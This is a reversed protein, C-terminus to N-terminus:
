RLKMFRPYFQVFPLIFADLDRDNDIDVLTPSSDSGTDDIEGASTFEPEFSTGTNQYYQVKGDAAGTLIDLKGDNDLDGFTLVSYAGVDIGSLPNSSGKRESLVSDMTINSSNLYFGIGGPRGAFADMDGDNDIDAFALVGGVAGRQYFSVNSPLRGVFLAETFFGTNEYFYIGGETSTVFADFDGDNDVDTFVPQSGQDVRAAFLPNAFGVRPTFLPRTLTGINEYFRVSGDDAGVFLDLDRDGDIDVAAPTSNKAVEIQTFPHEAVPEFRSDGNNQYYALSGSESGMLLDPHGDDNFDALVPKSNSGVDISRWPNATDLREVYRAQAPSGTNEFYSLTGDLSGMCLDLDGDADLDFLALSGRKNTGRWLDRTQTRETYEPAAPSGTNEFYRLSGDHEGMVLDLDGDRDLDILAPASHSGVNVKDLPNEVGSLETFAPTTSTGTNTFWRLSGDKTGVLLDLDDDADLDALAPASRYGVDVALLPPSLEIFEPVSSISINAFWHLSGDRTGVLLDLDSDADLDALVPTSGYGVDVGDWPNAANSREEFAVVRTTSGINEFYLSDGDKTKIVLDLDGDKDLDKFKGFNGDADLDGLVPTYDDDVDVGDWPNAASSHKVFMARTVVTGTNEFYRLTGDEAGVGLDLDGDADLDALMPASNDGVDVGSWPNAAGNREEYTPRTPTGINEFYALMGNRNGVVLDLDGDADLDGFAPKSYDGADLPPQLPYNPNGGTQWAMPQAVFVEPTFAYVSLGCLLLLASLSFFVARPLINM